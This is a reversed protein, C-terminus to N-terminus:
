LKNKMKAIWASEENSLEVQPSNSVAGCITAANIENRLLEFAMEFDDTRKDYESTSRLSDIASEIIESDYQLDDKSDENDDDNRSIWDMWLQELQEKSKNTYNKGGQNFHDTAANKDNEFADKISARLESYTYAGSKTKKPALMLVFEGEPLVAEDLELNSNNKNEVATMNSVSYNQNELEVKLQGWTTAESNVVAIGTSTSYIKIKRM